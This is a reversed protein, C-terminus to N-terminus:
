GSDLGLIAWLSREWLVFGLVFGLALAFKLALGYLFVV